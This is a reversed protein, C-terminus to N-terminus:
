IMVVTLNLFARVTNDENFDNSAGNATAAGIVGM